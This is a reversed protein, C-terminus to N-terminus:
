KNILGWTPTYLNKKSKTIKKLDTGDKQITFLQIIKDAVRSFVITNNDPSWSSKFIWFMNPNEYYNYKFKSKNEGATLNTQNGGMIEMIYLDLFGNRDSFYTIFKGDPSISPAFDNGLINNTLNTLNGNRIKANYIDHVGSKDSFFIISKADKTWVPVRGEAKGMKRTILKETRGYKDSFHIETIMKNTEYVIKKGNPSFVGNTHYDPSMDIKKVVGNKVNFTALKWGQWRYTNFLVTKGDPSISPNYEGQGTDFPILVEENSGDPDIMLISWGRDNPLIKSFLIKSEDKNSSIIEHENQYFSAPIESANNLSILSFGLIIQKIM